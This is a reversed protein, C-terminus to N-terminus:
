DEGKELKNFLIESENLDNEQKELDPQTFTFDIKTNKRRERKKSKEETPAHYIETLTDEGNVAIDCYFRLVYHGDFKIIDTFNLNTYEFLFLDPAGYCNKTIFSVKNFDLMDSKVDGQYIKDLESTFFKTINNFQQRYEPVYFDILAKGPKEIVNKVVLKSTYKELRFRPIFTREINFSYKEDGKSIPIKFPEQLDSSVGVKGDFIAVGDDCLGNVIQKNMLVLTIPNGDSKEVLGKYDFLTNKKSSGGGNYVYEHSRRESYYMEHRLEKVEETLEGKLLDKYVSQQEQQQEVNTGVNIEDERSNRILKDASILGQFLYFFTLKLKLWLKRM